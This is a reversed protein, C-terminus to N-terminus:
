CVGDCNLQSIKSGWNQTSANSCTIPFKSSSSLKVTSQSCCYDYTQQNQNLSNCNQIFSDVNSSSFFLSIKETFSNTGRSFIVLIAILVVISLAIIILTNMAMEMAKKNRSFDRNFDGKEM